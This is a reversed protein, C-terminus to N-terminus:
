RGAGPLGLEVRKMTQAERQRCERRPVELTSGNVMDDPTAAGVLERGASPARWSTSGCMPCREPLRAVVAGYGCGACRIEARDGVGRQRAALAVLEPALPTSLPPAPAMMRERKRGAPRGSRRGPVVRTGSRARRGLRRDGAARRRCGGRSLGANTRARGLAAGRASGPLFPFSHPAGLSRARGLPWRSRDRDGGRHQM